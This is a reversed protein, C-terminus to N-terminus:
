RGPTSPTSRPATQLDGSTFIAQIQEISAAARRRVLRPRQPRVVAVGRAARVVLMALLLAVVGCVLAGLLSPASTRADLARSPELDDEDM